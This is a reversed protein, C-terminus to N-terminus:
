HDPYRQHQIAQETQIHSSFRNRLFNLRPHPRRLSSNFCNALFILKTIIKNPTKGVSRIGKREGLCIEGVRECSNSPALLGTIHPNNIHARASGIPVM